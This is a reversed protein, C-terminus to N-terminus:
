MKLHEKGGLFQESLRSQKNDQQIPKVAMVSEKLLTSQLMANRRSEEQQVYSQAQRLSAFPDKGLVQIRIQDYKSLMSVLWFIM